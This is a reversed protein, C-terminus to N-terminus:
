IHRVLAFVISLAHVADSSKRRPQAVLLRVGAYIEEKSFLIHFELVACAPATHWGLHRKRLPAALELM